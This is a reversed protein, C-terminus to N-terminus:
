AILFGVGSTRTVRSHRSTKLVQEEVTVKNYYLISDKSLFDFIIFYPPEAAVHVTVQVKSKGKENAVRFALVDVSIATATARIRLWIAKNRLDARYDARIYPEKGAERHVSMMFQLKKEKNPIEIQREVLEVDNEHGLQRMASASTHAHLPKCIRVFNRVTGEVGREGGCCLPRRRYTYMPLRSLRELSPSM